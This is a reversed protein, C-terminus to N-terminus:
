APKLSAQRTLFDAVEQNSLIERTRAPAGDSLKEREEKDILLRIITDAFTAPTDATEVMGDLRGGFGEMALPYAVVPMGLMLYEAVKISVGTALRTPAIGVAHSGGIDELKEVRGLVTMNPSKKLSPEIADGVSGAVKLVADPQRNLIIPWIDKLFHNLADVNGAHTTGLFVVEAKGDAPLTGFEPPVPRLWVKHAEPFQPPFFAMENASAHVFFDASKVWDCEETESTEYFDFALGKERYRHARMWLVDHVFVGKRTPQQLHDLVPGVSSYEAITLDSPQRDAARAVSRVEGPSMPRGFYNRWQVKLGARRMVEHVLRIAFRAWIRPSLSWYRGGAEITGDWVIEDILARLRPHVSAFPRNGFAHWPAFVVRVRFGAAKATRLFTELFAGNGTTIADLQRQVLLTLTKSADTMPM